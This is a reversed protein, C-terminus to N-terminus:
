NKDPAPKAAPPVQDVRVIWLKALDATVSTGAISKLDVKAKDVQGADIEAIGLDLKALDPSKILGKALGQEFASIAEAYKGFSAYTAGLAISLEGAPAAAADKAQQALGADAASAENGAMAVLRDQRDIDGAQGLIHATAGAALIMRAEAPLNAELALEAMLMYDRPAGFASTALKLRDLELTMRDDFNRVRPLVLLLEKWYAPKPNGALLRELADALGTNDHQRYESDALLLLLSEDPPKGAATEEDLATRITQVADAFDKRHLYADAMLRHPTQDTGGDRYYRVVYKIVNADDGIRSDVDILDEVRNQAAEKSLLGTALATEIPKVAGRYDGSQLCAAAQTEAIIFTEYRSKDAVRDARRLAALAEKFKSQRLLREAQEVPKAVTERASLPAAMASVALSPLFPASGITGILVTALWPPSPKM